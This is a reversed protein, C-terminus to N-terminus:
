RGSKCVVSLYAGHKCSRVTPSPIRPKGLGADEPTMIGHLTQEGVNFAAMRNSCTYSDDIAGRSRAKAWLRKASSYRDLSIGHYASKGSGARSTVFYHFPTTTQRFGTSLM